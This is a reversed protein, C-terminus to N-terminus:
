KSEKRAEWQKEWEKEYKEWEMERQSIINERIKEYESLERVPLPPMPKKLNESLAKRKRKRDNRIMSKYQELEEKDFRENDEKSNISYCYKESENQAACYPCDIDIDCTCDELKTKSENMINQGECIANTKRHTENLKQVIDIPINEDNDSNDEDSDIENNDNEMKRKLRLKRMRTKAEQNKAEKEELTYNGRIKRMRIKSKENYVIIEENTQKKRIERVRMKTELKETTREENTQNERKQRMRIRAELNEAEIEKGNQKARKEKIRNKDLEKNRKYLESEGYTLWPAWLASTM